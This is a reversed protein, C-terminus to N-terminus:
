ETVTVTATATATTTFYLVDICNVESIFGSREHEREGGIRDKKKVNNCQM